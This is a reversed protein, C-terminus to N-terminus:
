GCGPQFTWETPVQPDLPDVMTLNVGYTSQNVMCQDADDITVDWGYFFNRKAGARNTIVNTVRTTSFPRGFGVGLPAFYLVEPEIVPLAGPVLEYRIIVQCTSNGNPLTVGSYILDGGVTYGATALSRTFWYRKTGSGGIMNFRLDCTPSWLGQLDDIKPKYLLPPQEGTDPWSPLIQGPM